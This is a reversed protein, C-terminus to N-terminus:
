RQRSEIAKGSPSALLPTFPPLLSVGTDPALETVTDLVVVAGALGTAACKLVVTSIPQWTNM